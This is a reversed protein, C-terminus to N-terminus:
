LLFLLCSIKNPLSSLFLFPPQPPFIIPRNSQLHHLMPATLPSDSSSPLSISDSPPIDSICFDSSPCCRSHAQPTPSQSPTSPFVEPPSSTLYCLCPFQFTMGPVEKTIWHSLSWVGLAPPWPRIGPWPLLVWTSCGLTQMGCSLIRCTAVLVQNLWASMEKKKKKHWRQPHHPWLTYSHGM